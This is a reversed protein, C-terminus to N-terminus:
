AQEWTPPSPPKRKSRWFRVGLPILPILIGTLLFQWYNRVFEKTYYWYSTSVRIDNEYVKFSYPTNQNRSDILEVTAVLKLTHTGSKVPKVNFIWESAQDGGIAQWAPGTGSPQQRHIEFADSEEALLDVDMKDGIKLDEVTVGKKAARTEVDATVGKAIGIKIVRLEGIKMINPIEYVIKGPLLNKIQEDFSASTAKANVNPIRSNGNELNVNTNHDIRNSNRNGNANFNAITPSPNPPRTPTPNPTPPPPSPRATPTQSPSPYPSPWFERELVINVTKSVCRNDPLRDPAKELVVNKELVRFPQGPSEVRMRYTGPKLTPSIYFGDTGSTARVIGSPGEITVRVRGVPKGDTSTIRGSMLCQRVQAAVKNHRFGSDWLQLGVAACILIGFFMAPRLRLKVPVTIPLENM